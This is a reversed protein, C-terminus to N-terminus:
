ADGARQYAAVLKAILPHRVIDSETLRVIGVDDIGTFLREV